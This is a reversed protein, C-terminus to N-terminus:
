KARWGGENLELIYHGGAALHLGTVHQYRGDRDLARADWLGPEPVDIKVRMGSGIASHSLLDPGWLEQGQPSDFDLNQGAATVRETKALYFANIPADTANKVAFDVPGSGTGPHMTRLRSPAGACANFAGLATLLLLLVLPRRGIMDGINRGFRARSDFASIAGTQAGSARTTELIEASKLTCSGRRSHSL